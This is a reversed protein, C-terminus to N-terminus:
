SEDSPEGEGPRDLIETVRVGFNEDIVVVEGWGIQQGAAFVAAPEGALRDLAILTGEGVRSLELLSLEKAGLVVQLSVKVASLRGRSQKGNM